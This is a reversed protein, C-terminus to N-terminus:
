IILMKEIESPPLSYRLGEIIKTLNKNENDLLEMFSYLIVSDYRSMYIRDRYYFLNSTDVASEFSETADDPCRKFYPHKLILPLIPESDAATLLEEMDDKSFRLYVPIHNEMISQTSLKFLGKFRYCLKLNFMDSTRMVVKKLENREDGSFENKISGCLWKNFYEGLATEIERIQPFVKGYQSLPALVDYYPTGKLATLLDSFSRLNALSMLDFSSYQKFFVPFRFIFYEYVGASTFMAASIIQSIEERKVLYSYFSGFNSSNFRCLETYIRFVRKRLLQELQGRHSLHEPELDFEAKFAPYTGLADIVGSVSGKSILNLYDSRKLMNGYKSRIKAIVAASGDAM